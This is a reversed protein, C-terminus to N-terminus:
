RRRSDNKKTTDMLILSDGNMTKIDTDQRITSDSPSEEEKSSENFILLMAIVLIFCLITLIIAVFKYNIERPPLPNIAVIENKQEVPKEKVFVPPAEKHPAQKPKSPKTARLKVLKKNNQVLVVTINDKGGKNNAAEILATGKQSLTSEANLISSIDDKNVLDTLGDSCLLLMDGSLFPSEGTEIYDDKLDVAGFGLAKNIENRKPHNMAAKESLKGNDELFGVFSHDKTVKILSHDRLLYLRTDGIHAYYFQNNQIDVVSLTLVCAMKDYQSINQKEEYIRYNATQFAEKMMSIVDTVPGKFHRQIADKAIAAAIEGGVYGGVGDIVCAIIFKGDNILEAIFADENNDRQKGIDTIGFFNETM